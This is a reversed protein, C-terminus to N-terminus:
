FANRDAATERERYNAKNRNMLLGPTFAFERTRYFALGAPNVYAATIDGGLSGMAGGIAMYRATGNVPYWTLRAADEPVQAFLQLSFLLLFFLSLKKMLM